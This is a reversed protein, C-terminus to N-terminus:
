RYKKINFKGYQLVEIDNFQSEINQIISTIYQQRNRDLELAKNIDSSDLDYKDYRFFM